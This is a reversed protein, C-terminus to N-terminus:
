NQHAFKAIVQGLQDGKQEQVFHGAGRITTHQQGRAGPIREQFIGDWGRTAFDGDSFATLFPREWQELTAMTARNIAAGPDKRTLPVLATLQRLGAKYKRDPFPADYAALVEAPLPGAIADLFFSPRIDPARQYFMIYDLLGEEVVVQSDGVGHHAWALKGSLAPDATQLITNTALVRAFREPERALVGMGIPGGWDQVVLVIDRLNLSTVFSHLWDIHRKFNYQTPEILKDSRGYGVNDPAVARLGEDVLRAIVKRYLYSWTPQGHVMLVVQADRPGEDVYHMRLPAIGETEVETYNPQFPYGPLNAFREEPTRLVGM